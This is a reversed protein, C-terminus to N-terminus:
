LETTNTIASLQVIERKMIDIERNAQAIWEDSCFLALEDTLQANHIFKEQGTIDKEIQAIEATLYSIRSIRHFDNTQNDM